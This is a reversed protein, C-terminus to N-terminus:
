PFKEPCRRLIEKCPFNIGEQIRQNGRNIHIIIILKSFIKGSM